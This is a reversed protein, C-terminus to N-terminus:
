VIVRVPAPPPIVRVAVTIRVTVAAAGEKAIETEGAGTVTVGPALAILVLLVMEVVTEPPKLEAILRSTDPSGAPVVAVNLVAEMAAGPEPDEISVNVTPDNVFAPV